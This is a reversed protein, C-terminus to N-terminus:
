VSLMKDAADRIAMANRYVSEQNTDMSLRLMYSIMEDTNNNMFSLCDRAVHCLYYYCDALRGDCIMSSAKLRIVDASLIGAVDVLGVTADTMRTLLTLTSREVGLSDHILAPIRDDCIAHRLGDLAHSSPVRNNHFLIADALYLASCKLWCSAMDTEQIARHAYLLSEAANDRM